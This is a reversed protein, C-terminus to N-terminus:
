PEVYHMNDNVHYMFRTRDPPSSFQYFMIAKISRHTKPQLSQMLIEAVIIAEYM